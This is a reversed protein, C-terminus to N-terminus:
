RRGDEMLAAIAAMMKEGGATIEARSPKSGGSALFFPKGVRVRVRGCLGRTGILAVPVVPAGSRLALMAAGPQAPLLKGTHSRTGEPFIGVVHGRMLHDLAMKFARRDYVERRVPFAGLLRLLLGFLPIQFLEEKAMFYVRRSLATGLVVPDWYSQHNAIVIVAGERPLNATGEVKWRRLLLLLVKCLGWAFWYVM